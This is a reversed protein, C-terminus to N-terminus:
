NLTPQSQCPGSFSFEIECIKTATAARTEACFRYLNFVGIGKFCVSNALLMRENGVSAATSRQPRRTTANDACRSITTTLGSFSRTAATRSSTISLTQRGFSRRIDPTPIPAHQIHLLFHKEIRRGDQIMAVNRRARRSVPQKATWTVTIASATPSDSARVASRGVLAHPFFHCTLQGFTSSHDRDSDFSFV